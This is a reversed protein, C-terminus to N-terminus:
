YDEPPFEEHNLAIDYESIIKRAEAEFFDPVLIKVEALPGIAMPFGAIERRNVQVPIDASKLLGEIILDNPPYEKTITVWNSHNLKFGCNLCAEIYNSTIKANCKPCNM